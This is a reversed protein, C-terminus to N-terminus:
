ASVIKVLKHVSAVVAEDSAHQKREFNAAIEKLKDGV